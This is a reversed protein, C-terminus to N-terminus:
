NPNGKNILEQFLHEWQPLIVSWDYQEAKHRANLSLKKAMEPETLLLRIADAMKQPDDSHVILATQRDEWLNLLEGVATTVIPLGVLAAELVSVGFSEYLTTNIFIDGKALQEPVENKPIAGIISINSRLQKEQILSQVKTLSGDGKDPGIMTLHIDEFESRLIAIIQVTLDPQYISHFARLWILRPAILNRLKFPYQEVNVANPIYLLEKSYFQLHGILFQSPTVVVKAYNLLSTIRAPYKQAFEALGGGHLALLIPKGLHALLRVVLEAWIFALGSYVEVYAIQYNHRNQYTSFLMELLRLVRWSQRSTLFTNWGKQALRIAIEEGVSRTGVNTPLFSGVFLIGNNTKIKLRM